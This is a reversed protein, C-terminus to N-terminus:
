MSNKERLSNLFYWLFVIILTFLFITQSIKLNRTVKLLRVSEVVQTKYKKFLIFFLSFLNKTVVIIQLDLLIRWTSKIIILNYLATSDYFMQFTELPFRVKLSYCLKM